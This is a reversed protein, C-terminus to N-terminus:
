EFRRHLPVPTLDGANELAEEIDDALTSRSQPGDAFWEILADLCLGCLDRKSPKPDTDINVVHVRATVREGCRDCHTIIM